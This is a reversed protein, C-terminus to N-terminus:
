RLQDVCFSRAFYSQIFRGRLSFGSSSTERMLLRLLMLEPTRNQPHFIAVPTTFTILITFSAYHADVSRSEGPVACNIVLGILQILLRINSRRISDHEVVLPDAPSHSRGRMPTNKAGLFHLTSPNDGPIYMNIPLHLVGACACVFAHLWVGVGM